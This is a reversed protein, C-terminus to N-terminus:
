GAAVGRRGGGGRGATGAAGSEGVGGPAEIAVPRRVPPPLAAASAAPYGVGPQMPGAVFAPMASGAAYPVGQAPAQAYPNAPVPASPVYPRYTTAGQGSQAYGAGSAQYVGSQAQFAADGGGYDGAAQGYVGGAPASYSGPPGTPALSPSPPPPFDQKPAAPNLAQAELKPHPAGNERLPQREAAPPDPWSAGTAPPVNEFGGGGGRAAPAAQESGQGGEWWGSPAQGGDPPQAVARARGDMRSGGRSGGSRPGKRRAGPEPPAEVFGDEAGAAGARGLVDTAGEVDFRGNTSDGRTGRGRWAPSGDGYGGGRPGARGGNGYAEGGYSGGPERTGRVDSTGHVDLGADYLVPAARRGRGAGSAPGNRGRARGRADQQGGPWKYSGSPREPSTREFQWGGGGGAFGPPAAEEGRRGRNRPRRGQVDSNEGEGFGRPTHRAFSGMYHDAEPPLDLLEFRDHAWKDDDGEGWLKKKPKRPRRPEEEDGQRDDHMWFTGSTPVEYPEKPTARQERQAREKEREEDEGGGEGGKGEDEEALEGEERAPAPARDGRDGRMGGDNASASAARDRNRGRQRARRPAPVAADAGDTAARRPAANPDLTLSEPEGEGWGRVPQALEGSPPAAPDTWGGRRPPRERAAPKAPSPESSRDTVAGELLEAPPLEGEELGTHDRLKTNHLKTAIDDVGSGGSGPKDGAPEAAQTSTDRQELELRPSDATGDRDRQPEPRRMPHQREGAPRSLPM